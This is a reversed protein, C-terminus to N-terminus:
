NGFEDLFQRGFGGFVQRLRDHPRTAKHTLAEARVYCTARLAERAPEGAYHRSTRVGCNIADANRLAALKAATDASQKCASQM